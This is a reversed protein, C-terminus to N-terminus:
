DCWETRETRSEKDPEQCSDLGWAENSMEELEIM